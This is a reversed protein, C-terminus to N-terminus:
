KVQTGPPLDGPDVLRLSAGGEGAALVMGRSEIGRLKRAKLNAVLVVRQGVLAEPTYAEAIGSVM